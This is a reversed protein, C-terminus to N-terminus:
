LLELFFFYDCKLELFFIQVSSVSWSAVYIYGAVIRSLLAIVFIQIWVESVDEVCEM